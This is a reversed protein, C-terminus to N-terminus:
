LKANFFEDILRDLYSEQTDPFQQQLEQKIQETQQMYNIEDSITPDTHSQLYEETINENLWQNISATQEEEISIQGKIEKAHLHSSIGVYLFIVFVILMAILQIPSSYFHLVGILNLMCFILGAGGLISFCVATSHLDEYKDAKKVYVTSAADRLRDADERAALNREQESVMEYDSEFKTETKINMEVEMEKSLIDSTPHIGGRYATLLKNTDTAPNL